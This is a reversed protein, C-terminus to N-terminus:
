YAGLAWQMSFGCNNEGWVCVPYTWRVNVYWQTSPASANYALCGYGTMSTQDNWGWEPKTKTYITIKNSNVQSAGSKYYCDPVDTKIVGPCTSVSFETTAQGPTNPQQGQTFEVSANGNSASVVPYYAIVGSKMRLQDPAQNFDLSRALSGVAPADCGPVTGVPPPTSAITISYQGGTNPSTAALSITCTGSTHLTYPWSYTQGEAFPLALTGTDCAGNTASITLQATLPGLGTAGGRRLIVSGSSDPATTITGPEVTFNAVQPSVIGTCSVTITGNPAVKMETYSCTNGTAGSLTVTGQAAAPLSAALALGAGLVALTRRLLQISTNTM